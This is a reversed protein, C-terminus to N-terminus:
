KYSFDGALIIEGAGAKGIHEVNEPFNDVLWVTAAAMMARLEYGPLIQEMPIQSTRLRHRTFEELFDMPDKLHIGMECLILQRQLCGELSRADYPMRGTALWFAADCNTELYVKDSHIEGHLTYGLERLGSALAISREETKGSISYTFGRSALEMDGTRAGASEDAPSAQDFLGSQRVERDSERTCVPGNVAVLASSLGALYSLVDVMRGHGTAVVELASNLVSYFFPKQHAQVDIGVYAQYKEHM